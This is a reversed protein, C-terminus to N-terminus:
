ASGASRLALVVQAWLLAPTRPLFFAFLLQVAFAPALTALTKKGGRSTGIISAIAVM